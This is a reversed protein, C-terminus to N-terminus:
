VPGPTSAWHEDTAVVQWYYLTDTILTGPDCTTAYVTDCVLPDPTEDGAELYVDYSVLDGDPDGGTWSLHVQVNQESAGNAPSPSSPLNPPDNAPAAMVLPLYVAWNPPRAYEWTDNLWNYGDSFYYGGFLVTQGNGVDYATSHYGRPSPASEPARQVWDAGDWEWTDDKYPGFDGIAGGFLLTVGRASDYAMTHGDRAAPRSAPTRQVWDVGDWEWTDDQEGNSANKGGFLVTVRRASDYAMAHWRRAPPATAPTRQEWDSGDWEWIDNLSGSQNTGGFLVTVGRANDYAMAHDGRAAPVTVPTRQVWSTGDWEWTDNAFYSSNVLGGFLVTVGRASDYAMGHFDRPTPKTAPTRQVWDVGDWEWTDNLPHGSGDYYYGGFLVSVARAADYAM